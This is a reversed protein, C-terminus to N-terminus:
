KLKRIKELPIHLFTSNSPDLTDWPVVLAPTTARKSRVNLRVARKGPTDKAMAGYFMHPSFVLDDLGGDLSINSLLGSPSTGPELSATDTEVQIYDGSDLRLRAKLFDLIADKHMESLDDYNREVFHRIMHGLSRLRSHRREGSKVTTNLNHAFFQADPVDLESIIGLARAAERRRIDKAFELSTTDVPAHACPRGGLNTLTSTSEEYVVMYQLRAQVTVLQLGEPTEIYNGQPATGFGAFLGTPEIANWVVNTPDQIEVDDLKRAFPYITQNWPDVTVSPIVVDPGKLTVKKGMLKTEAALRDLDACAANGAALAAEVSFFHRNSFEAQQDRAATLVPSDSLYPKDLEFETPGAFDSMDVRETM